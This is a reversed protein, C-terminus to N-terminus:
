PGSFNHLFVIAMKSRDIRDGEDIIVPTHHACRVVLTDSYPFPVCTIMTDSDSYGKSYRRNNLSIGTSIFYMASGPICEMGAAVSAGLPVYSVRPEITRQTAEKTFLNVTHGTAPFHAAMCAISLLILM